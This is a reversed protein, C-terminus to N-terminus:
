RNVIRTPSTPHLPTRNTLFLALETWRLPLQPRAQAQCCLLMSRSKESFDRWNFPCYMSHMIKQEAQFWGDAVLVWGGVNITRRTNHSLFKTYLHPCKSHHSKYQHSNDGRWGNKANYSKLSSNKQWCFRWSKKLLMRLNSVIKFDKRASCKQGQM